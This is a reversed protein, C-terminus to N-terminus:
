GGQKPLGTLAPDVGNSIATIRGQANRTIAWAQSPNVHQAYPNPYIRRLHRVTVLQRKDLLLDDFSEPYQKNTGPSAQYYSQLAHQYLHLVEKLQAERERQSQAALHSVVGQTSLSLILMAALLAVMTFGQQGSVHFQRRKGTQMHAEM